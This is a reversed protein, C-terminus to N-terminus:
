DAQHPQFSTNEEEEEILCSKTVEHRDLSQHTQRCTM